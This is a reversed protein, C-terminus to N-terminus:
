RRGRPARLAAAQERAAQAGAADGQGALREALRDQRKAEYERAGAEKERERPDRRPAKSNRKGFGFLSVTNVISSRILRGM